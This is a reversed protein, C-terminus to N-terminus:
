HGRSAAEPNALFGASLGRLSYRRRAWSGLRDDVNDDVPPPPSARATSGIDLGEVRDLVDINRRGDRRQIEYLLFNGDRLIILSKDEMKAIKARINGPNDLFVKHHHSFATRLSQRLDLVRQLSWSVGLRETMVQAVMEVLEARRRWNDNDPDRKSWTPPKERMLLLCLRSAAAPAALRCHRRRRERRVVPAAAIRVM